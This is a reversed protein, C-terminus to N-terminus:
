MGLLKKRDSSRIEFLYRFKSMMIFSIECHRYYLLFNLCIGKLIIFNNREVEEKLQKLKQTPKFHEVIKSFNINTSAQKTPCSIGKAHFQQLCKSANANGILELWEQLPQTDRCSIIGNKELLDFVQFGSEAKELDTRKLNKTKVLYKLAILDSEELKNSVKMLVTEFDDSKALGNHIISSDISGRKKNSDHRRFTM